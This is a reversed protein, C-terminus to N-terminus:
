KKDGNCTFAHVNESSITLGSSLLADWADLTATDPNHTTDVRTDAHELAYAQQRRARSAAAARNATRASAVTAATTQM